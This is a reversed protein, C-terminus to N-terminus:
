RGLNIVVAQAKCPIAVAEIPSEHHSKHFVNAQIGVCGFAPDQKSDQLSQVIADFFPDLTNVVVVKRKDPLTIMSDPHTGTTKGVRDKGEGRGGVDLGWAGVGTM